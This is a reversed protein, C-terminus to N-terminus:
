LWEEPKCRARLEQFLRARARHLRIKVTEVSLGLAQAVERNSLGEMEGLVFVIRHSAPLHALFSVFCRFREKRLLLQELSLADQDPWPQAVSAEGEEDRPAQTAEARFGATRMRDIAAHSAIRYLWTSLQSEGRFTPLSRHVRVFVEQTLDEAESEGVLRTLYRLIRPRYAEHVAEFDIGAAPAAGSGTSGPGVQDRAAV